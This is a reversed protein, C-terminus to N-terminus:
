FSDQYIEHCVFVPLTRTPHATEGSQDGDPVKLTTVQDQTLEAELKKLGSPQTCSILAAFEPMRDGFLFTTPIHNDEGRVLCYAAPYKIM